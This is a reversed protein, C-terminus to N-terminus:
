RRGHTIEWELDAGDQWQEEQYAEWEEEETPDWDDFLEGSDWLTDDNVYSM